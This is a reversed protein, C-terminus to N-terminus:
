FIGLFGKKDIDKKYLTTENDFRLIEITTPVNYLYVESTGSADLTVKETANIAIKAQESATIHVTKTELEPALFKGKESVKIIHDKSEGSLKVNGYQMMTSLSDVYVNGELKSSENIDLFLSKGKIQYDAKAKGFSHIQLSDVDLKLDLRADDKATIKLQQLNLTTLSNVKADNRVKLNNLSDTVTIFIKLEKKSKINKTTTLTLIDNDITYIIVDHLNEDATIEINPHTGKVLIVELDEKLDLGSFSVVENNKTVVNRDGKIKEKKQAHAFTSFCLAVIVVIRFTYKKIM